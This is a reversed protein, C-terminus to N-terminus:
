KFSIGYGHMFISLFFKLRIKKKGYYSTLCINLRSDLFLWDFVWVVLCVCLSCDITDDTDLYNWYILAGCYRANRIRKTTKQFTRTKFEYKNFQSWLFPGNPTLPTTYLNYLIKSTCKIPSSSTPVLQYCLQGFLCVLWVVFFFVWVFLCIIVFLYVILQVLLSISSGVFLCILFLWSM